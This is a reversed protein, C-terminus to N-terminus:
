HLLVRLMGRPAPVESAKDICDVNVRAILQIRCASLLGLPALVKPSPPRDTFTVRLLNGDDSGCRCYFYSKSAVLGPDAHFQSFWSVGALIAKARALYELRSSM